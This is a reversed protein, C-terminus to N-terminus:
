LYRYKVELFMSWGDLGGGVGVGVHLGSSVGSELVKADLFMLPVAPTKRRRKKKKKKQGDYM